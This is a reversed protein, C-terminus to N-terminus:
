HIHHKLVTELSSCFDWSVRGCPHIFKHKHQSSNLCLPSTRPHHIVIQRLYVRDLNETTEFKIWWGHRSRYFVKAPFWNGNGLLSVDLSRRHAQNLWVCGKIERQIQNSPKGETSHKNFAKSCDKQYFLCGLLRELGRLVGWEEWGDCERERVCVSVCFVDRRM